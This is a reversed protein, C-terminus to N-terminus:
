SLKPTSKKWADMTEIQAYWQTVHPFETVPMKAQTAYTLCAAVSFDAITPKEGVLFKHTTLHQNLVAAYQRFEELGEKVAATDPEGETMM